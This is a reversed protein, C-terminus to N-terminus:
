GEDGAAMMDAEWQGTWDAIVYRHPFGHCPHCSHHLFLALDTGSADKFRWVGVEPDTPGECHLVQDRPGQMHTVATGDRMVFRRNFAVRGDIGRGADLTVPVLSDGAQQAAECIREVCWPHYEEDGGLLWPWKDMYPSSEDEFTFLHGLSPTAHNQHVHFMVQASPIGLIEGVAARLRDSWVNTSALLNAAILALRMDADELVVVTAYIRDRVEEMPRRHGINGALQTGEKPTIDTRGLGLLLTSPPM